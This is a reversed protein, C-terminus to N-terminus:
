GVGTGVAAACQRVLVLVDLQVVDARVRFTPTQDTPRVQGISPQVTLASLFGGVLIAEICRVLLRVDRRGIGAAPQAYLTM